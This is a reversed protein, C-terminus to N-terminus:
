CLLVPLLPNKHPRACSAISKSRYSAISIISNQPLQIRIFAVRRAHMLILSLFQAVLHFANQWFCYEVCFYFLISKGVSFGVSYVSSSQFYECHFLDINDETRNKNKVVVKVVQEYLLSSMYAILLFCRFLLVVEFRLSAYHKENYPLRSKSSIFEM